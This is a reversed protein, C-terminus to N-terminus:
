LGLEHAYRDRYEERREMVGSVYARTEAFPIDEDPDFADRGGAEAVWRDVNSMGANYAAVALVEDEDYRDLLHRLYWTGYSINVQPTGLDRLEFRTGGTRRAIFQATQPMLQM